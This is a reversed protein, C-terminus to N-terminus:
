LLLFQPVTLLSPDGALAHSAIQEPSIGVSLAYVSLFVALVATVAAFRWVLRLSATAALEDKPQAFQERRIEAMVRLTFDSGAEVRPRNQHAQKLAQELKSIRDSNKM